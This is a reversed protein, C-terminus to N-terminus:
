TAISISKIHFHSRKRHSRDINVQDNYIYRYLYPLCPLSHITHPLSLKLAICGLLVCRIYFHLFFHVCICFNATSIPLTSAPSTFHGTTTLTHTHQYVVASAHTHTNSSCSKPSHCVLTPQVDIEAETTCTVTIHLYDQRRKHLNINHILLNSKHRQPTRARESM